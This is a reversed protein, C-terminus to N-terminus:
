ATRGWAIGAFQLSAASGSFFRILRTTGTIPFAALSPNDFLSKGCHLVGQADLVAPGTAIAWVALGGSLGLFDNAGSQKATLKDAAGGTLAFWHIGALKVMDTFVNGNLDTLSALNLDFTDTTGPTANTLTAGFVGIRKVTAALNGDEYTDGPLLPTNSGGGSITTNGFPTASTLLGQVINAPLIIRAPM